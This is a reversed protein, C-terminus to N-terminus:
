PSRAVLHYSGVKRREKKANPRAGAPEVCMADGVFRCFGRMQFVDHECSPMHGRVLPSACVACRLFFVGELRGQWSSATWTRCMKVLAALLRGAAAPPRSPGFNPLRPPRTIGCTWRMKKSYNERVMAVVVVFVRVMVDSYKNGAPRPAPPPARLAPQLRPLHHVRGGHGGRDRRRRRLGPPGPRGQVGAAVDDHGGAAALLLPGHRRRGGARFRVYTLVKCIFPPRGIRM